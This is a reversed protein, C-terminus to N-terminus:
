TATRSVGARASGAAAPAVVVRHVEDQAAPAGDELIRFRVETGAPLGTTGLDAVWVGLGSAVGPTERREDVGDVWWEVRCADAVQVRLASGEPLASARCRPSWVTATSNTRSRIYREYPQQPMDFVRGDHLSRVLKAYEAHAWV